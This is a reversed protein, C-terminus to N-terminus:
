ARTFGSRVLDAFRASMENLDEEHLGTAFGLPALLDDLRAEAKTMDAAGISEGDPVVLLLWGRALRETVAQYRAVLSLLSEAQIRGPGITTPPMLKIELIVDRHTKEDRARFLGDLEIVVDGKAPVSVGVNSLFTHTEFEAEGLQAALKEEIRAIAKRRELYRRDIEQQRSRATEKPVQSPPTRPPPPTPARSAYEADAEKVPEAVAERAQEDRKDELQEPSLRRIEARARSKRLEDEEEESVQARRLRRGGSVLLWVGAAGLAVSFIVVGLELTAIADQRRELTDRGTETLARLEKAPIRLTDTSQFYFYPVILAAALLLLGLSTLFRNFNGTDPRPM